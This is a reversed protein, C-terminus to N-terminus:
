MPTSGGATGIALAEMADENHQPTDEIEDRRWAAIFSAPSRGTRAEFRSACRDLEPEADSCVGGSRPDVGMWRAVSAAPVRIARQGVTVHDLAGSEILRYIQSPSVGLLAALDRPRWFPRSDLEVRM